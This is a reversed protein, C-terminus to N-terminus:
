ADFLISLRAVDTGISNRLRAKQCPSIAIVFSSTLLVMSIASVMYKSSNTITNSSVSLHEPNEQYRWIGGIDDYKEFAVVDFGQSVFEKVAALGAIGAGVVALSIRKENM